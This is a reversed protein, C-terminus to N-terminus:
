TLKFDQRSVSKATYFTSSRAYSFLQQLRHQPHLPLSTPPSRQGCHEDLQNLGGGGGGLGQGHEGKVRFCLHCPGTHLATHM